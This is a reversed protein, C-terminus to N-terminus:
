TRSRLNSMWHEGCSSRCYAVKQARLVLHCLSTMAAALQLMLPFPFSSSVKEAEEMLADKEVAREGVSHAASLCGNSWGLHEWGAVTGTRASSGLGNCRGGEQGEAFYRCAM